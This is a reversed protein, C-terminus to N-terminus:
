SGNAVFVVVIRLAHLLKEEKLLLEVGTYIIFSIYPSIPQTKAAFM